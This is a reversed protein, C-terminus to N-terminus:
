GRLTGPRILFWVGIAILVVPWLVGAVGGSGFILAEFFFGFVAFGVLSGTVLLRGTKEASAGWKGILAASWISAGVFGPLLTWAYAWSQWNGSLSQYLFLLGLGGLVGAPVLLGAVERRTREGALAVPLAFVVGIGVIILPWMRALASWGGPTLAPILLLLGLLLLVIGLATNADIRKM